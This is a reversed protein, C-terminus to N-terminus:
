KCFNEEMEKLQHEYGFMKRYGGHSLHIRIEVWNGSVEMVEASTKILTQHHFGGYYGINIKQGVEYM